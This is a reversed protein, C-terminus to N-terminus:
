TVYLELYRETMARSSFETAAREAASAVLRTRLTADTLIREMARALAHPDDAPVLLGDTESRIAEPVGCIASAVVPVGAHMAELIVLPLGEWRSPLAFVSAAALLDAVDQRAGPLAVRHGLGLREVQQLLEGAAEEHRGAILLRWPLGAPLLNCAAILVDFGKRHWTNGVALILAEGERLGAAAAGRATSGQPRPVGNPVVVLREGVAGLSDILERRTDGSIAVAAHATRIAWRLASRRYPAERYRINGHMALVHRVGTLRTAAAGYVSMWYDHSHVVDPRWTRIERVLHRLLAPDFAGAFPFLSLEAGLERMTASLWGTVPEPGVFRVQHGMAILEATMNAMVKELGGMTNWEYTLLIRM